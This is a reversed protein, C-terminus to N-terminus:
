DAPRVTSVFFPQAGCQHQFPLYGTSSLSRWDGPEGQMLFQEGLAVRQDAKAPRHFIVLTGNFVTGDPWLPLLQTRSQEDRFLLCGGEYLLSGSYAHAASGHYPATAIELPHLPRVPQGTACGAVALLMILVSKRL